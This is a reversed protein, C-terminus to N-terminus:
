CACSYWHYDVIYPYPYGPRDFGFVWFISAFTFPYSRSMGALLGLIESGSLCRNAFQILRGLCVPPRKDGPCSAIASPPTTAAPLASVRVATHKKQSPRLQQGPEGPYLPPLHTKRKKREKKEWISACQTGGKQSSAHFLSYSSPTRTSQVKLV